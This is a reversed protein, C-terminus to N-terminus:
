RPTLSYQIQSKIGQRKNDIYDDNTADVVDLFQQYADAILTVSPGMEYKVEFSPANQVYGLALVRDGITTAIKSDSLWNFDDKFGISFGDFPRYSYLLGATHGLIGTAEEHYYAYNGRYNMQFYHHDKPLKYLITQTFTQRFDSDEENEVLFINDDLEWKLRSSFELDNLFQFFPNPEKLTSAESAPNPLLLTLFIVLSIRPSLKTMVKMIVGM